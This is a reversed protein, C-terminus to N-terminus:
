RSTMGGHLTGDFGCWGIMQSIGSEGLRKEELLFELTESIRCLPGDCEVGHVAVGDRKEALQESIRAIPLAAERQSPAGLLEIGMM